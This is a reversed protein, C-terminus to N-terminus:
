KWVFIPEMYVSKQGGSYLNYDYLVYYYSFPASAVRFLLIKSLRFSIPLDVQPVVGPGAEM